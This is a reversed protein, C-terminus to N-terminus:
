NTSSFPSSFASDSLNFSIGIEGQQIAECDNAGDGIM